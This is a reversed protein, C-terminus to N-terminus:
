QVFTELSAGEDDGRLRGRTSAVELDVGSLQGQHEFAQVQAAAAPTRAPVPAGVLGGRRGSLESARRSTMSGDVRFFDAFLAHLPKVPKKSQQVRPPM